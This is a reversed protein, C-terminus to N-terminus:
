KVQQLADLLEKAEPSKAAFDKWATEKALAVWQDYEAQTMSHVKAGAKKYAAVMKEVADKQLSNFFEDSKAAAEEFIKKQAPTLKDWHQKSMVLPQLLMWLAYDSPVTAFKTQEYLRMSVFTEASTLTGNIVGSQLSPYIETSPMNAVSVGAARLMAEFTPDAARMKLGDVSKPGTVERDKTAFAGPTWWWTVVHIGNKEALAQFKAQFPTGRLKMAYALTPVTGPMIIISFEEAKGVAYSMPFVAMELTGNQLADLQAVPKIGLSQAPYIRFKLSPDRKVVEDVFVRTARDRGDVNAKWQHSIKIEQAAVPAACFAAAALAAVFRPFTKM